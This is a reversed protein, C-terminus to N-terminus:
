PVPRTPSFRFYFFAIVSSLGIFLLFAAIPRKASRVTEFNLLTNRENAIRFIEPEYDDMESKRVWVSVSDSRKLGKLIKDFSENRWQDGINEKIQFKKQHGNLYFILQSSRSEHGRRNTHNTIYINAARLTGKIQTLSSEFVWISKQEYFSLGILTVGLILLKYKINKRYSNNQIFTL